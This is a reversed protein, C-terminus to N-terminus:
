LGHPVQPVVQREDGLLPRRHSPSPESAQRTVALQVSAPFCRSFERAELPEQRRRLHHPPTTRRRTAM